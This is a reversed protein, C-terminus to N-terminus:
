WGRFMDQHQKNWYPSVRGNFNSGKSRDRRYPSYRFYICIPKNM